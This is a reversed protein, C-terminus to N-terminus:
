AEPNSLGDRGCNRIRSPREVWKSQEPTSGLNSADELGAIMRGSATNLRHTCLTLTDLRATGTAGKAGRGGLNLMEWPAPLRCLSRPLPRCQVEYEGVMQCWRIWKDPMIREFGSNTINFIAEGSGTAASSEAEVSSRSNEGESSELGISEFMDESDITSAWFVDSVTSSVLASLLAEAESSAVGLLVVVDLPLALALSGNLGRRM